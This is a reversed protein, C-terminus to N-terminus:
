HFYVSHTAFPNPKLATAMSHQPPAPASPAAPPAAGPATGWGRPYWQPCGMGDWGMGDWGMGDRGMGDWGMGDWGTGGWEMGDGTLLAKTRSLSEVKVM